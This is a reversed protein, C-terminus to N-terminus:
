KYKHLMDPDEDSFIIGKWDKELIKEDSQILKCAIPIDIMIRKDSEVTHSYQIKETLIYVSSGAGTM